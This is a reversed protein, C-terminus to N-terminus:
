APFNPRWGYEVGKKDYQDYTSLMSLSAVIMAVTLLLSAGGKATRVWDVLPPANADSPRLGM